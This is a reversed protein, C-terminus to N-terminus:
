QLFPNKNQCLIMVLAASMGLTAGLLLGLLIESVTVGLHSFLM